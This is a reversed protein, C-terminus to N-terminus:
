SNWLAKKRETKEAVYIKRGSKVWVSVLQSDLESIPGVREIPRNLRDRELKYAVKGPPGKKMRRGRRAIRLNHNVWIFTTLIVAVLVVTIFLVEALMWSRETEAWVKIWWAVFLSWGLAAVLLRGGYLIKRGTTEPFIPRQESDSATAKQRSQEPYAVAETAYKYVPKM